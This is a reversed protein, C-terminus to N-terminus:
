RTGSTTTASSSWGDAWPPRPRGSGRRWNTPTRRRTVTPFHRRSGSCAPYSGRPSASRYHGAPVAQDGMRPSTPGPATSTAPFWAPTVTLRHGPVTPPATRRSRARCPVSTAHHGSGQGARNRVGGPGVLEQVPVPPDEVHALGLGEALPEVRVELVRVAQGRAGGLHDVLGVVHLPDHHVRLGLGEQELVIEDLLELGPEVDAQLVVLAVRPQRDGDAVVPGARRHHPASLAAPHPVETGIGVHPRDALREVQEQAREGHPGAGVGLEAPVLAQPAGAEQEVDLPARPRADPSTVWSSYSRRTASRM